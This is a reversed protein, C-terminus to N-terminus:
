LGGVAADEGQEVDLPREEVGHTDELQATQDTGNSRIRCGEDHASRNCAPSTSSDQRACEDHHGM